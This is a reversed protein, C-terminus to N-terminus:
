YQKRRFSCGVLLLFLYFLNTIERDINGEYGYGEVWNKSRFGVFPSLISRAVALVLRVTLDEGCIYM